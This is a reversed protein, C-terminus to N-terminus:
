KLENDIRKLKDDESVAVFIFIGEIVKERKEGYMEEAFISVNIILKIRDVKEIKGILEIITNHYVSKLFKIKEISATVMKTRTYRTATIYAVEDMWQMAKGGFLTNHNNLDAPYIVKCQRTESQNIREEM